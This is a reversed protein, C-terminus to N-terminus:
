PTLRPEIGRGNRWTVGRVRPDHVHSVSPVGSLTEPQARQGRFPKNKSSSAACASPVRVAPPM